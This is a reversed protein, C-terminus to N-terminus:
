IEIFECFEKIPTECGTHFVCYELDVDRTLMNHAVCYVEDIEDLYPIFRDIISVINSTIVTDMNTQSIGIEHIVYDRFAYYLANNDNYQYIEEDFVQGNETQYILTRAIITDDDSTVYLVKIGMDKMISFDFGKNSMCSNALLKESNYIEDVEGIKWNSFNVERAKIIDLENEYYQIRASLKQENISNDMLKMFKVFKIKLDDRQNSSIQSDKIILSEDEKMHFRKLNEYSIDDKGLIMKIQHSLGDTHPIMDVSVIGEYIIFAYTYNTDDLYLSVIKDSSSSEDLSKSSLALLAFADNDGIAQNAKFILESRKM